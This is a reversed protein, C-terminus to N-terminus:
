FFHAIVVGRTCTRHRSLRHCRRRSYLCRMVEYVKVVLGDDSRDGCIYENGCTRHRSLRRCRRSYSSYMVLASVRLVSAPPLKM